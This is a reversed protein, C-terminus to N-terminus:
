LEVSACVTEPRRLAGKTGSCTLKIEYKAKMFFRGIFNSGRSKKHKYILHLSIHFQLMNTDLVMIKQETRKTFVFVDTGKQKRLFNEKIKAVKFKKQQQM